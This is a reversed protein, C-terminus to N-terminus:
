RACLLFHAPPGPGPAPEDRFPPSFQCSPFVLDRIYVEPSSDGRFSYLEDSLLSLVPGAEDGAVQGCISLFPPFDSRHVGQDTRFRAVENQLSRCRFRLFLTLECASRSITSTAHYAFSPTSPRAARENEQGTCSPDALCKSCGGRVACRRPWGGSRAGHRPIDLRDGAHLEFSEGSAPLDFRISGRACFLVKHNRHSHAAYREGPGNSWWSPRLGEERFIAGLASETPPGSASWRTLRVDTM